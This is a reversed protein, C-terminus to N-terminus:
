RFRRVRVWTTASHPRQRIIDTRSTMSSHRFSPWRNDIRLDAPASREAVLRELIAVVDDATYHRSVDM